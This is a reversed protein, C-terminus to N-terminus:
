LGNEKTPHKQVIWPGFSISEYTHQKWNVNTILANIFIFCTEVKQVIMMLKVNMM